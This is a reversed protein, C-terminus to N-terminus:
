GNKYNLLIRLAPPKGGGFRMSHLLFAAASHCDAGQVQKVVTNGVGIKVFSARGKVGYVLIHRYDIGGVLLALAVATNAYNEVRTRGGRVEAFVPSPSSVTLKPLLETVKVM